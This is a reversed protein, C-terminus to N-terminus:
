RYYKCTNNIFFMFLLNYKHYNAKMCNVKQELWSKIEIGAVETIFILSINSQNIVLVFKTALWYKMFKRTRKIVLSTNAKLLLINM